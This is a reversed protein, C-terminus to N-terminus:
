DEFDYTEVTSESCLRLDSNDGKVEITKGTTSVIDPHWEKSQQFSHGVAEWKEEKWKKVTLRTALASEQAKSRDGSESPFIEEFVGDFRFSDVADAFLEASSLKKFEGRMMDRVNFRIAGKTERFLARTNPNKFLKWLGEGTYLKYDVHPHIDRKDGYKFAVAYFDAVETFRRFAEVAERSFVRNSM